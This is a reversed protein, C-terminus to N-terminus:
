HRVTADAGTLPIGLDWFHNDPELSQRLAVVPRHLNLNVKLTEDKFLFPFFGVVEVDISDISLDPKTMIEGKAPVYNALSTKGFCLGFFSLRRLRGLNVERNMAQSLSGFTLRAINEQVRFYGIWLLLASSLVSLSLLGRLTWKRVSQLSVQSLATYLRSSAVLLLEVFFEELSRYPVLKIHEAEAVASQYAWNPMKWSQFLRVPPGEERNRATLNAPVRACLRAKRVKGNPCPRGGPRAVFCKVSRASSCSAKANNEM